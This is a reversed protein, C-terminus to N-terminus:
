TSPDATGLPCCATVLISGYVTGAKDEASRTTDWALVISGTLRGVKGLEMKSSSNVNAEAASGPPWPLAWRTLHPPTPLASVQGM